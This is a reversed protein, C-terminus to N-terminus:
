GSGQVLGTSRLPSAMGRGLLSVRHAERIGPAAGVVTKEVLRPHTDKPHHLEDVPDLGAYFEHECGIACNVSNRLSRPVRAM